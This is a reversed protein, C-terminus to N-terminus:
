ASVTNLRAVWTVGFHNLAAHSVLVAAHLPLVHARDAPWGLLPALFEALGYDIGATIAFQGLTNLWATAWGAGRGRLISAWHYLAGATSFASALEGLSLAICVTFAAV